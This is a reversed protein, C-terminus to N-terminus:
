EKTFEYPRMRAYDCYMGPNERQSYIGPVLTVKKM